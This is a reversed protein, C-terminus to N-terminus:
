GHLNFMKGVDMSINSLLGVRYYVAPELDHLNGRSHEMRVNDIIFLCITESLYM